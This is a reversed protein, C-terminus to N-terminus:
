RSQSSSSPRRRLTNRQERHLRQDEPSPLRILLQNTATHATVTVGPGYRELLIPELTAALDEARGAQVPYIIIDNDVAPYKSVVLRRDSQSREVDRVLDEVSAQISDDRDSRKPRSDCGLTLAFLWLWAFAGIQQSISMTQTGNHM